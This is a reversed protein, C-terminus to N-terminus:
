ALNCAAKLSLSSALALAAGAVAVAAAVCFALGATRLDLIGMRLLAFIAMLM